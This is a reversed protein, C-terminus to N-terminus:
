KHYKNTELKAIIGVDLIMPPSVPPAAHAWGGVKIEPPRGGV